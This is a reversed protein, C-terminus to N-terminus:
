LTQNHCHIRSQLEEFNINNWLLFDPSIEFTGGGVRLTTTKVGDSVLMNVQVTSSTNNRTVNPLPAIFVTPPAVRNQPHVLEDAEFITLLRDTLVVCGQTSVEPVQIMRGERRQLHSVKQRESILLQNRRWDNLEIGNQECINAVIGVEREYSSPVYYIDVLAARRLLEQRASGMADQLSNESDGTSSISTLRFYHDVLRNWEIHLREDMGENLEFLRSDGSPSETNVALEWSPSKRDVAVPRYSAGQPLESIPFEGWPTPYKSISITTM